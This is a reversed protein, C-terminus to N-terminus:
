MEEERIFHRVKSKISSMMCRVLERDVKAACNNWKVAMERENKIVAGTRRLKGKVISWFKEIPRFEPCNPPNMTKPIVDINNKQYWDMTAASYHASALDPWFKVPNDHQRVFPLLRKQLCEKIYLNSDLKSTTVFLRSKLGCSCIAQWILFKKCFKDLKQYKFKDAAALRKSAVYFQPGPLQKLDAKTYTEDDMIIYGTFKTLVNDYLLRTRTKVSSLQKDTRNPVKVAHYSKLGARKMTKHVYSKSGGQKKARDRLSLGPNAKLSRVVKQHQKKDVPGPKRGSGKARETTLTSKFRKIVDGVTSKPINLM